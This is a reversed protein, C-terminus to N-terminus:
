AHYRSAAWDIDMGFLHMEGNISSSLAKLDIESYNVIYNVVDGAANYRKEISFPNRSTNTYFNTFWITGRSFAYDLTASAGWRKRIEETNEIDLRLGRIGIPRNNDAISFAAGQRESGRNAREYNFGAVLGIKNNSFRQSYEGIAKYDGYDENLQNYGSNFRLMTKRQEPAKKIRLNVIGGVAEADMDPTPAKFVEIAELLESSIMSLDVSRDETDTAPIRVGNVTIANLKPELGRIVIKQAEGSSRRVSIGPLRSISEAVNQDPLEQIRDAAVVNMISNATLQQNIAAMQGERQGWVFITEAEVVTSVLSVDMNVEGDAGVTVSIEKTEYGIYTVRLTYTGPPVAKLSYRGSLDTAAGIATGVIYVNAGPLPDGTQGDKIVGAVDGPPAAEVVSYFGCAGFILGVVLTTKFLHMKM